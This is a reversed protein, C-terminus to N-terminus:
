QIGRVMGGDILLTAGTIYSAAPSLLFAVARGYEEITGYRGLPIREENRKKEQEPTTGLKEARLADLERVRDTDIRGPVVTNVRIGLPACEDALTKALAAVGAREVNSLVLNPIPEKISSSTTFVISGGGKKKMEPIVLRALRVASLVLLDHADRWAEDGFDMFTGAPPGGSNGFMMDIGGHAASVEAVWAEVLEPSRVDAVVPFVIGGTDLHIRDAARMVAAADRSAISVIAGEDALAKAVGYGLGKSAGAVLAVKGSLGLDM